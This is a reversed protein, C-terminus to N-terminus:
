RTGIILGMPSPDLMRIVSVGKFGADKLWMEYQGATYVNGGPNEVLMMVAFVASGAPKICDPELLFDYIIVRGGEKLARRAKVLLGQNITSPNDHFINSFLVVDNEPPFEDTVFDGALVGVQRSMGSEAVFDETWPVVEPLELVTVDLEPYQRALACAFTGVGGGVDLLRRCGSLELTPLLDGAFIKAIDDLATLFMRTTEPQQRARDRIPALAAKDLRVCDELDAWARYFFAEKDVLRGIYGPTGPVLVSQAMESNSFRGDQHELLNLAVCARLLIGLSREPVDLRLALGPLTYPSSGLAEFVGLKHAAMLVASTQYQTLMDMMQYSFHSVAM